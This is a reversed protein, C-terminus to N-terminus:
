STPPVALVSSYACAIMSLIFTALFYPFICIGVYVCVAIAVFFFFSMLNTPAVQVDDRVFSNRPEGVPLEPGKLIIENRISAGLHPRPEDARIEQHDIPIPAAKRGRLVDLVCIDALEQDLEAFFPLPGRRLLQPVVVALGTEAIGISTQPAIPGQGSM